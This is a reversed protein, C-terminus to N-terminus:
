RAAPVSISQRGAQRVRVGQTAAVFVLVFAVLDRVESITHAFLFVTWDLHYTMYVIEAVAFLSGGAIDAIQVPPLAPATDALLGAWGVYNLDHGAQVDGAGFGTISCYVLSDPLDTAGIGLRETIPVSGM